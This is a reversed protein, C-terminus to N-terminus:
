VVNLFIHISSLIKYDLAISKKPVSHKTEHM